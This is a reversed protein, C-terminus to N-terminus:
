SAGGARAHDMFVMGEAIDITGKDPLDKLGMPEVLAVVRAPDVGMVKKLDQVVWPGERLQLPHPAMRAVKITVLKTM